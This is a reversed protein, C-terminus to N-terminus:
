KKDAEEMLNTLEDLRQAVTKGDSLKKRFDMTSLRNWEAQLETVDPISATAGGPPQPIVAATVNVPTRRAGLAYEAAKAVMDTGDEFNMGTLKAFAIYDPSNLVSDPSEALGSKVFIDRVKALAKAEEAKGPSTQRPVQGGLQKELQNLIAEREAERIQPAYQALVDDPVVGKLVGLAGRVEDLGKGLESLRKDKFGQVRREVEQEIRPALRAMIAEEDFASGSTPSVSSVKTFTPEPLSGGEGSEAGSVQTVDDSM